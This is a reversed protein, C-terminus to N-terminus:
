YQWGYLSNSIIWEGTPKEKKVAATFDKYGEIRTHNDSFFTMIFRLASLVCSCVKM